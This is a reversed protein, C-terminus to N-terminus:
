IAVINKWKTMKLKYMTFILKDSLKFNKQWIELLIFIGYRFESDYFM